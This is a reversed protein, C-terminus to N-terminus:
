CDLIEQRIDKQIEVIEQMAAFLNLPKDGLAFSTKHNQLLVDVSALRTRIAEISM